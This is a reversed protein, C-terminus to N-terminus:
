KGNKRLEESQFLGQERSRLTKGLVNLLGLMKQYCVYEGWGCFIELRLAAYTCFM